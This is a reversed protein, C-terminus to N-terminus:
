DQNKSSGVDFVIRTSLTYRVLLSCKFINCKSIIDLINWWTMFHIMQKLSIVPINTTIYSGSKMLILIPINHKILSFYQSIYTFIYIYIYQSSKLYISFIYLICSFQTNFKFQTIFIYIEIYLKYLPFNYFSWSMKLIVFIIIDIFLFKKWIM